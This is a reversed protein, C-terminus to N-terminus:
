LTYTSYIPIYLPLAVFYYFSLLINWDIIIALSAGRKEEKREKSGRGKYDQKIAASYVRQLPM